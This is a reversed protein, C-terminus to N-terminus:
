PLRKLCDRVRKSNRDLDQIKGCYQAAEKVFWKDQITFAPSYNIFLYTGERDSVRTKYDELAKALNSAYPQFSGENLRIPDGFRVFLGRQAVNTPDYVRIRGNPDVSFGRGRIDEPSPSPSRNNRNGDQPSEQSNSQQQSNGQSNGAGPQQNGPQQSNNQPNSQHNGGLPNENNMGLVLPRPFYESVVEEVVGKIGLKITIGLFGALIYQHLESPDVGLFNLILTPLPSFKFLVGITLSILGVIINVITFHKTLNSLTFLKYM